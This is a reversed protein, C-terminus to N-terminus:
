SSVLLGSDQNDFGALRPEFPLLPRATQAAAEGLLDTLVNLYERASLRRVRRGLSHQCSAPKQMDPGSGGAASGGSAAGPAKGAEAANCGLVALIAVFGAGAALATVGGWNPFLRM